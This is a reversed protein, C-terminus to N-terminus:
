GNDEEENNKNFDAGCQICRFWNLIGLAGMFAAEGGCMPCFVETMKM